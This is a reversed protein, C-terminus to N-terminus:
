GGVVNWRYFVIEPEKVRLIGFLISDQQMSGLITLPAELGTARALSGNNDYLLLMRRDSRTDILMRLYFAGVPMTPLSLWALPPLMANLSANDFRMIRGDCTAAIPATQPDRSTVIVTSDAPHIAPGGGLVFAEDLEHAWTGAHKEDDVGRLLIGEV